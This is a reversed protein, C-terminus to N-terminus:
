DESPSRGLVNGRRFVSVPGDESVAVVIADPDDHSYRRGSTHRTGKFGDVVQEAEPSPVLRVGLSRLVGDADIVAAGDIQSLAHRLPGLQTARDIRLPPPEPLRQEVPPGGEGHDRLVLLAGIGNAGLDHVAFELLDRLLEVLRPSTCAKVVEIWGEVPPEHHWDFGNWRHLGSPGVIRVAGTPHRQVFTADMTRAMVGLDRESGAPRDLVLWGPPEGPTRVLWSSLGDAFRRAADLPQAGVPIRTIGLETGEEWTAPDSRPGLITGSSAVRREHVPPHLAHDAEEVLLEGREGDVDLGLESLEEALRRRRGITHAPVGAM